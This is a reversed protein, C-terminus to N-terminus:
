KREKIVFDFFLLIKFTYVVVLVERERFFFALSSM